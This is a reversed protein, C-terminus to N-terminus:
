KFQYHHKSTEFMTGRDAIVYGKPCKHLNSLQSASGRFTQVEDALEPTARAPCAPDTICHGEGGCRKCMSMKAPKVVRSVHTNITITDPIKAM